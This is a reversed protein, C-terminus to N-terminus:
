APWEGWVGGWVGVHRGWTAGDYESWCVATEGCTRSGGVFVSGHARSRVHFVWYLWACIVLYLSYILYEFSMSDNEAQLELVLSDLIEHM